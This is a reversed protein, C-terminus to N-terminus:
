NIYKQPDSILQKVNETLPVSVRKFRGGTGSLLFIKSKPIQLLKALYAILEQNAEGQYPKAHLKIHLGQDSVEILASQKANPKAFINLIVQQDDIKFWTM